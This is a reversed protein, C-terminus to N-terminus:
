AMALRSVWPWCSASASLALVHGLEPSQQRQRNWGLRPRPSLDRWQPRGPPGLPLWGPYDRGVGETPQSVSCGGHSRVPLAQRRTRRCTRESPHYGTTFKDCLTLVMPSQYRERVSLDLSIRTIM